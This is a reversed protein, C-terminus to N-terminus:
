YYYILVTFYVYLVNKNNLKYKIILIIYNQKIVYLSQKINLLIINYINFIKDNCYYNDTM